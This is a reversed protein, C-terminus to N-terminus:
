ADDRKDICDVVLAYRVTAQANLTSAVMPSTEIRSELSEDAFSFVM